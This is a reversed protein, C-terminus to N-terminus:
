SYELNLVSSRQITCPSRSSAILCSVSIVPILGSYASVKAAETTKFVISRSTFSGAGNLKLRRTVEIGSELTKTNADVTSGATLTFGNVEKNASINGESLDTANLKIETAAKAVTLGGLNVPLIGAVMIIAAFVAVFRKANRKM